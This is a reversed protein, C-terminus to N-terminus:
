TECPIELTSGYPARIALVMERSEYDIDNEEELYNDSHEIDSDSSKLLRNRNLYELDEHTM